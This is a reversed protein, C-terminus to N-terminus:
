DISVNVGIGLVGDVTRNIDDRLYYKYFIKPAVTNERWEMGINIMNAFRDGLNGIDESVIVVGIVEIIFLLKNIQYGGTIGYHM